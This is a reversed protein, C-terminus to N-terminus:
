LLEANGDDNEIWSKVIEKPPLPFRWENKMYGYVTPNLSFLEKALEKEDARYQYTSQGDKFLEMRLLAAMTPNLHKRISNFQRIKNMRWNEDILARQEAQLSQVYNGMQM